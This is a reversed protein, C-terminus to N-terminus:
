AMVGITRKLCLVSFAHLANISVICIRALKKPDEEINVYSQFLIEILGDLVQEKYIPNQKFFVEDKRSEGGRTTTLCTLGIIFFQL